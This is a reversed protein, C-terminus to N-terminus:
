GRLRRLWSSRPGGSVRSTPTNAETAHEVKELEAAIAAGLERVQELNIYLVITTTGFPTLAYLAYLSHGWLAPRLGLRTRAPIDLWELAGAEDEEALDISLGLLQMTPTAKLSRM